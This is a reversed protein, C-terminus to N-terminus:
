GTYQEGKTLVKPGWVWTVADQASPKKLYKGLIEGYQYRGTILGAQLTANSASRGSTFGTSSKGGSLDVNSVVSLAPGAMIGRRYKIKGQLATVDLQLAPTLAAKIKGNPFNGDFTLKRM